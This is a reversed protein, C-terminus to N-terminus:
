PYDRGAFREAADNFASSYVNGCTHSSGNEVADFVVNSLKDEANGGNLSKFEACAEAGCFHESALIVVVEVNVVVTVNEGLGVVM